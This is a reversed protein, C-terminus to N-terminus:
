DVCFIRKRMKKSGDKKFKYYKIKDLEMDEEWLNQSGKLVGSTRRL